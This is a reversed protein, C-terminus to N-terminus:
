MAQKGMGSGLQQLLDLVASRMDKCEIRRFAASLAIGEPTAMFATLDDGSAHGYDNRPLSEFFYSIPVALRTAIRDLDSARVRNAGAEYKQIQQFTVGIAAGLETQSMGLMLRRARMRQGLHIDAPTARRKNGWTM